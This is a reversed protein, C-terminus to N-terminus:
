RPPDGHPHAAGGEGVAGQAFAQGKFQESLEVYRVGEAHFRLARKTDTVDSLYITLHHAPLLGAARAPWEIVTVGDGEIYDLLGLDRVQAPDELRYLDVHYLPLRGDEYENILTFTPSTIYDSGVGLGRAIGQTFSTKGAGFDGELLILDGAQLLAALRAGIRRTQELSHSIIDVDRAPRAAPAAGTGAAPSPRDPPSPTRYVSM